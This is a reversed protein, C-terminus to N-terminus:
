FNLLGPALAVLFFQKFVVYLILVTSFTILSANGVRGLGKSRLAKGVTFSLLIIVALVFVISVVAGVTTKSFISPIM